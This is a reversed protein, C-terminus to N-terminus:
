GIIYSGQVTIVDGSTLSANPAASVINIDGSTTLNVTGSWQTGRYFPVFADRTPAGAGFLFSGIKTDTMNGASTATLTSGTYTIDFSIFALPGATVFRKAAVSGFLSTNTTFNFTGVGDDYLLTADTLATDLQDQTLTVTNSAFNITKGTLTQTDTTGVVAGTPVVKQAASGDAKGTGDTVVFSSAAFGNITNNDASVTKNTFTEVGAKTAFAAPFTNSPDTLDKNTLTEVGAKTALSAPFTNTPSTLDKNTLAQTNTTGVVAGTAGHAVTAAEHDRADKFDIAAHVHRVVAGASHAVSTTNDYGRVVTLTTGAVATVLVLEQLATDADLALIFDTAPFGTTASVSITTAASTAGSALTTDAAVNSYRRTM